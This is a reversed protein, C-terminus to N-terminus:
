PMSAQDSEGRPLLLRRLARDVPRAARVLLSERTTLPDVLIVPMGQRWGGIADTLFQDGVAAVKDAPLRLIAFARRYGGGFPKKAAGVVPLGLLRGLREARPRRGNSVIVASLGLRRVEELFRETEAPVEEGRAAVLTNDLDFLLGMVGARALEELPVADLRPVALLFRKM